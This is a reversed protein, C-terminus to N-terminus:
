LGFPFHTANHLKTLMHLLQGDTDDDSRKANWGLDGEKRWKVEVVPLPM